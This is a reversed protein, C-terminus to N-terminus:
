LGYSSSPPRQLRMVERDLVDESLEEWRARMQALAHEPVRHISPYAGTATLVGVAPLRLERAINWYPAAERNTTLTNAVIVNLGRQLASRATAICARHAAPLVTPQFVFAAPDLTRAGAANMWQDAELHERYFPPEEALLAKSITTKGSGPLGRVLLLRPTSPDTTRLLARLHEYDDFRRLLPKTDANM